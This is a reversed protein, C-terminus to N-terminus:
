YHWEETTRHSIMQWIKQRQAFVRVYRLGYVTKATPMQRQVTLKGSIIAIDKHLEVETSDHERSLFHVSTDAVNKIWSKKSDVQGTGHTFVFDDAYHKQLVSINKSVVSHDLLRNISDIGKKVAVNTPRQARITFAMALLLLLGVTNKM